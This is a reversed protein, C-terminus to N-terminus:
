GLKKAVLDNGQIPDIGQPSFRKSLSPSPILGQLFYLALHQEIETPDFQVFKHYVGGRKQKFALDMM